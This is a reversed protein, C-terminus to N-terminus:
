DAIECQECPFPKGKAQRVAQDGHSDDLEDLVGAPTFGEIASTEVSPHPREAPGSRVFLLENPKGCGAVSIGEKTERDLFHSALDSNPWRRGQSEVLKGQVEGPARSPYEVSFLSPPEM